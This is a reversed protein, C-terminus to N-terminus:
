FMILFAWLTLCIISTSLKCSCKEQIITKFYIDMIPHFNLSFRFQIHSFDLHGQIKVSTSFCFRYHSYHLSSVLPIGRNHGQSTVFPWDFEMFAWVDHFFTMWVFPCWCVSVCLSVFLSYSVSDCECVCFSLSKICPSYLYLTM